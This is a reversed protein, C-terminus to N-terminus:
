SINKIKELNYFKELDAYKYNEFSFNFLEIDKVHIKGVLEITKDDYYNKFFEHKESHIYNKNCKDTITSLDETRNSIKKILEFDDNLNHLNIIYDVGIKGNLNVYSFYGNKRILDEISNEDHLSLIWDKFTYKKNIIEIWYKIGKPNMPNKINLIEKRSRFNFESLIREWPNRFTAFKFYDDFPISKYSNNKTNTYFKRKINALKCHGTKEGTHDPTDTYGFYNKITGGGTKPIHVFLLPIKNEKPDQIM